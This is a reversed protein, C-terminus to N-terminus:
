RKAGFVEGGIVAYSANDISTRADGIRARGLLVGHDTSQEDKEAQQRQRAERAPLRDIGTHGLVRGRGIGRGFAGVTTLRQGLQDVLLM